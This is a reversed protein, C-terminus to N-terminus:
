RGPAKVVIGMVPLRQNLVARKLLWQVNRGHHLFLDECKFGECYGTTVQNDNTLKMQLSAESFSFDISFMIDQKIVM